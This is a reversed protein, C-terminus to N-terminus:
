ELALQKIEMNDYPISLDEQYHNRNKNGHSYPKTRNQSKSNISVKYNLMHNVKSYTGHGCSFFVYETTSPHIIRYIDLLDLQDLTLNLDLIEKNEAKIIQGTSEIPHLGGSNNHSESKTPRSTSTKHVQTSM